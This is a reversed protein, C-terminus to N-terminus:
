TYINSPDVDNQDEIINSTTITIPYMVSNLFSSTKLSVASNSTTFVKSDTTPKLYVADNSVMSASISMAYNYAVSDNPSVFVM